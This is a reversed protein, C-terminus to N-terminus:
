GLKSCILIENKTAASRFLTQSVSFPLKSILSLWTRSLNSFFPKDVWHMWVFFAIDHLGIVRACSQKFIFELIPPVFLEIASLLIVLNTEKKHQFIKKHLIRHSCTRKTSNPLSHIIVFFTNPNIEKNMM